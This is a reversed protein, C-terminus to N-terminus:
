RVYRVKEQLLALASAAQLVQGCKIMKAAEITSAEDRLLSALKRLKESEM